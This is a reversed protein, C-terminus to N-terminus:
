RIAAEEARRVAVQLEDVAKVAQRAKEEYEKAKKVLAEAKQKSQIAKMGAQMSNTYAEMRRAAAVSGVRVADGGLSDQAASAARSARRDQNAKQTALNAEKRTAKAELNAKEAAVKAIALEAKRADVLKRAAEQKEKLDVLRAAEEAKEKLKRAVEAEEARKREAKAEAERRRVEEPDVMPPATAAPIVAVEPTAEKGGKLLLVSVAMGVAMCAIGALPLIIWLVKSSQTEMVGGPGPEHAQTRAQVSSEDDDDVEPRRKPGRSPATLAPRPAPRRSFESVPSTKVTGSAPVLIAGNCKPCRATKGALNDPAKVKSGCTPCETPIPM